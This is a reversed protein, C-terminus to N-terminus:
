VARRNVEAQLKQYGSTAAYVRLQEIRNVIMPHTALSEALVNAVSDDQQDILALMEELEAPTDAEKNVLKVLASIAKDLSGCALLGARDASYECMRNWSRFALVLIVAASYPLPVGAMGGLLTNLWTHGLAVHGLEHGLIFRLEDADMYRFLAGFLVVIKPDEMGFTYANLERSPVAFVEVAGPRLKRQCDDVVASLAQSVQPTIRKGNRLLEQHHSRNTLYAFGMFVIVALPLLCVTFGAALLGAILIVGVTVILTIQERPYRYSTM